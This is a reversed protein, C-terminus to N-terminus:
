QGATFASSTAISTDQWGGAVRARYVLTGGNWVLQGLEGTPGYQMLNFEGAPIMSGSPNLRDELQEVQLQLAPAHARRSM